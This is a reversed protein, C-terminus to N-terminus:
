EVGVRSKSVTLLVISVGVLSAIACTIFPSQSSAADYLFGGLTSGVVLGVNRFGNFIGMSKGRGSALAVNSFMALLSPNAAARGVGRVMIVLLLPWFSGSLPILVASLALLIIGFTLTNRRGTRDAVTGLPLTTLLTVIGMMTFLIGVDTVNIHLEENAFVSLVPQIMSHSFSITFGVICLGLFVHPYPTIRSLINNASDKWFSFSHNPKLKNEPRVQITEIKITEKVTFMVLLMSAFALAGCVFFPVALTLSGALIGGFGPGIVMGLFWTM